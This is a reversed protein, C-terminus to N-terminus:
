FGLFEIFQYTQVKQLLCIYTKREVQMRVFM